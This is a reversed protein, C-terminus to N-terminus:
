THTITHTHNHTHPHIQQLMGRHKSAYPGYEPRGDREIIQVYEGMLDDIAVHVPTRLAAVEVDVPVGAEEYVREPGHM